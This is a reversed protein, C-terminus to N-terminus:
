AGQPPPDGRAAWATALQHARRQPEPLRHGRVCALALGEADPLSLLHGVSVFVPRVGTQTRLVTGVREGRDILATRCGAQRGPEEWSGALPSKACGLTPLDLLLGLHCALGCRRPHALGHGDCLLAEPARRLRALAALLGPLERFALLGPTYPFSVPCSAEEVEVVTGARLDWLVVAAFCVSGLAGAPSGASRYAADLGALLRVEQPLPTPRVRRALRQQVEIAEAVTAPWTVEPVEM